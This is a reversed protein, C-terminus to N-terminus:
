LEFNLHSFSLISGYTISLKFPGLSLLLSYQLACNYNEIHSSSLPWFVSMSINLHYFFNDLSSDQIAFKLHKNLLRMILRTISFM